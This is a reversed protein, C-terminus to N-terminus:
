DITVAAGADSIAGALVMEVFSQLEAELGDPPLGLFRGQVTTSVIGHVASFWTRARLSLAQDSADPDLARLPAILLDLLAAHGALYWDPSAGGHSMRHDFLANWAHTNDRAFRAYALALGTFARPGSAGGTAAILDAGLARLTVSNAQLILDDLDEFATYLSGLACGVDSALDRARLADLGDQAIRQHAAAVLRAKLDAKKQERKGAM